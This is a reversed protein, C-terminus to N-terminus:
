SRASHTPIRDIASRATAGLIAVSSVEGRSRLYGTSGHPASGHIDALPKATEAKAFILSRKEVVPDPLRDERVQCDLVQLLDANRGYAVPAQQESRDGCQRRRRRNLGDPRM